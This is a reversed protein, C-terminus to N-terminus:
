ARSNVLGQAIPHGVGQIGVVQEARRHTRMGVGIQDPLQLGDDAAFGTRLHQAFASAKWVYQDCADTTARIGDPSEMREDGIARDLDDSDFRASAAAAQAFIGGGDTVTPRAYQM